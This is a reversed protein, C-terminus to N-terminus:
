LVLACLADHLTRALGDYSFEAVARARAARGAATRRTEDDLCIEIAAAVAAADTPDAVVTGTVGDAVAEAAGGSAGAVQPVGCAAAELFVIGFGEQELGAWRNRCLMAFLDAAGYLAAKDDEAFRGLMQVPAGTRRIRRALRAEDRGGGGILVRLRPRRPALLAAADILVDMGKRPVLRSISMVVEDDPAVGLRTRTALRDAASPPAFRETDVGPPVIVAPLGRRAAREAEDAPYGGGAVVLEAGVLVRALGSRLGPVRGPVTVEAGHLVVAYPRELRPGLHGLPLAPDLLVVQADVEAALRDIRAALSRTPLLVREPTREIRYGQTRDWAASDPHPTTLVTVEEVPLRRWLEWLYQQIGGDKPPFDNTVLLHRM